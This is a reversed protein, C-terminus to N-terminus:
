GSYNKGSWRYRRYNYVDVEVKKSNKDKLLKTIREEM